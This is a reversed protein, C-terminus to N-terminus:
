IGSLFPDGNLVRRIWDLAMMATNQKIQVRTGWFRYKHSFVGKEGALGIHVTGVPKERSGGDPGAIGTVALGLDTGMKAKVGVAMERATLDSVAGLTEITKPSVGLLDVKAQNSYVMVGGQFYSSSGPVNTLLNGIFGGTCSEAVSLTLKKEILMRGVVDEMNLNGSAFVYPRLIKRLEKEMKDLEATVTAEDEGRLSMTIHNEPFQPYFGLLVDHTKDLLDKLVDAVRPENLGYLKLIRQRLVPLTHCQDLIEPIVFKDMLFRMQDPVGPLFYLRVRDERLSFGCVNGDPNLLKSGEPMWAMKELSPSLEMGRADVYNKIQQLMQKDLCLPRGLADAAIECTMDDVTSGLGGTIIVFRSHSIAKSLAKSVREPHDGVTTIRTVKLGSATLRGAAYWANLDLTRGSILENGITIIEGFMTKKDSSFTM